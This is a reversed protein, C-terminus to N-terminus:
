KTKAVGVWEMFYTNSNNTNKSNSSSSSNVNGTWHIWFRLICKLFWTVIYIRQFIIYSRLSFFFYLFFVCCIYRTFLSLSFFNGTGWLLLLLPLSTIPRQATPFIYFVIRAGMRNVYIINHIWVFVSM